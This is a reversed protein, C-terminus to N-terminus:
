QRTGAFVRAAKHEQRAVRGPAAAEGFDELVDNLRFTLRHEAPARQGRIVIRQALGRLRTLREDALHEDSAVGRDLIVHIELALEVDDPLAGVALDACRRDVARLVPVERAQRVLGDDVLPHQQRLLQRLVEGVQLVRCHLRRQREHMRAEARVRERAPVACMRVAVKRVVALDIRQAAVVVPHLRALRQEFGVGEAFVHLLNKRDDIRVAAVRRHEVVGELEEHERAARERVRHHHHNRLRPRVVLAHVVGLPREVLVVRAQHLRPVAGRGDRERVTPLDAGHEIAVSQTRRAVVNRLVIQNDHRRFGAHQVNRRLSYQQLPPHM